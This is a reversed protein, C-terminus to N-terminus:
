NKHCSHPNINLHLKKHHIFCTKALNKDFKLLVKLKDLARLDGLKSANNTVNNEKM